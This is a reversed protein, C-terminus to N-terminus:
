FSWWWPILLCAMAGLLIALPLGVKAFDAFKYGGAGYVYTNTQYGIPTVFSASSAFMVAVCLQISRGLGFTSASGGASMDSLASRIPLVWNSISRIGSITCVSEVLTTLTM